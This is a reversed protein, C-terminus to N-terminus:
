LGMLNGSHIRVKRSKMIGVGEIDLGNDSHPPKHPLLMSKKESTNRKERRRGASFSRVPGLAPGKAMVVYEMGNM